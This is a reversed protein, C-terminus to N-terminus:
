LRAIHKLRVGLRRELLDDIRFTDNSLLFLLTVNYFINIFYSEAFGSIIFFMAICIWRPDMKKSFYFIKKAYLIFILISFILGYFLVCRIYANDLIMPAENTKSAARAGLTIVDNGFLNIEYIKLFESAMYLRGTLIENLKYMSVSDKMYLDVTIFSLAAITAFGAILACSIFRNCILKPRLFSVFFMLFVLVFSICSTRAAGTLYALVFVLVIGIWERSKLTYFKVYLYELLVVFLIFAIYM